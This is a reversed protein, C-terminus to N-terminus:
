KRVPRFERLVASLGKFITGKRELVALAAIAADDDTALIAKRFARHARALEPPIHPIPGDGTPNVGGDVIFIRVQKPPYTEIFKTVLRGHLKIRPVCPYRGPYPERPVALKELTTQIGRTKGRIAM